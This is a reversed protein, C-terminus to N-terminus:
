CGQSDYGKIIGAEDVRLTMVCTEGHRWDRGESEYTYATLGDGLTTSRYFPGYKEVYDDFPQGIYEKSTLGPFACSTLALWLTILLIDNM